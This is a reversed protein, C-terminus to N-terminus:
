TFLFLCGLVGGFGMAGLECLLLVGKEFFPLLPHHGFGNEFLVTLFLENLKLHVVRVRVHELPDLHLFRPEPELKTHRFSVNLFLESSSKTWSALLRVLAIVTHHERM